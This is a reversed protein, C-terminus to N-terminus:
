PVIKKFRRWEVVGLLQLVGPQRPRQHTEYSPAGKTVVDLASGVEAACRIQAPIAPDLTRGVSLRTCKGVWQDDSGSYGRSVTPLTARSVVRPRLASSVSGDHGAPIGNPPGLRLSSENPLGKAVGTDSVTM